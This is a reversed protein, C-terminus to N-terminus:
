GTRWRVLRTSALFAPVRGGEGTIGDAVARAAAFAFSAPNPGFGVAAITRSDGPMPGIIPLSDRTQAFTWAWRKVVAPETIGLQRMAFDELKRQIRPEIVSADSEGLELHPTAWRSGSVVVGGGPHDRWTTWGHGSRRNGPLIHSAPGTLLAADRVSTFATALGSEIGGSDCGAAVVVLEAEVDARAARTGLAFRAGADRALTLLTASASPVLRGDDPLWLAQGLSPAGTRKAVADADLFEARIGMGPLLQLAREIDAHEGVSASVWLAGSREFLGDEELLRKNNDTFAFLEAAQDAGLAAITRAPQEVVGLEVHGLGQDPAAASSEIVLVDVGARALYLATATGALGAGFVVVDARLDVM